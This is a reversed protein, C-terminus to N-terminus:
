VTIYYFLLDVGDRCLKMDDENLRHQDVDSNEEGIEIM